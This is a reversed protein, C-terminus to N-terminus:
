DYEIITDVSSQHMQDPEFSFICPTAPSILFETTPTHYPKWTTTPSQSSEPMEQKTNQELKIPSPATTLQHITRIDESQKAELQDIKNELSKRSSELEKIKSQLSIIETSKETLLQKKEKNKKTGM